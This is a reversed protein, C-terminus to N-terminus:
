KIKIDGYETNIKLDYEANNGQYKLENQNEFNFEDYETEIEGNEVMIDFNYLEYDSIPGMEIDAYKVKLDLDRIQDLKLNGYVSNATIKGVVKSIDLGTYRSNINLDSNINNIESSGYALDLKVVESINEILTRGYSNDARLEAELDKVELNGYHNILYSKLDAPVKIQYNIEVVDILEPTKTQSKNLSIILENNKIGYVVELDKIFEEAAEQDEGHIKLIYDISIENDQSGQIEISGFDNNLSLNSINQNEELFDKGPRLEGEKEAMLNDTNNKSKFSGGELSIIESMSDTIFGDFLHKESDVYKLDVIMILTLAILLYIILKKRSM